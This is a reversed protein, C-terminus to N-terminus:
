MHAKELEAANIKGKKTTIRIVFPQKSMFTEPLTIDFYVNKDLDLGIDTFKMKLKTGDALLGASVPIETASKPVKIRILNNVPRNFVTLYLTNEKQTFYGYNVPELPAHTVGYVAEGNQQIWEGIEKALQDEGRSMNGNGDPGFNLVFNGGMSTAHMLM